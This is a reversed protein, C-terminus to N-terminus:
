RKGMEDIAELYCEISAIPVNYPIHNGVAFFYGPCERGLGADVVRQPIRDPMDLHIAQWGRAFSM